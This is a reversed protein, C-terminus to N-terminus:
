AYADSATSNPISPPLHNRRAYPPPCCISFMGVGFIQPVRGGSGRKQRRHRVWKHYAFEIGAIKSIMKSVPNKWSLNTKVLFLCLQRSREAATVGKKHTAPQCCIFADTVDFGRLLTSDRACAFLITTPMPSMLLPSIKHENEPIFKRKTM